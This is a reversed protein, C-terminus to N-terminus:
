AAAWRHAVESVAAREAPGRRWLVQAVDLLLAPPLERALLHQVAALYAEAQRASPEPDYCRCLWPDAHGCPLPPLRRAAAGRARLRPADPANPLTTM